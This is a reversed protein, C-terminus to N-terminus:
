AKCVVSGPVKNSEIMAGRESSFLHRKYPDNTMEPGGKRAEKQPGAETWRYGSPAAIYESGGDNRKRSVFYRMVMFELRGNFRMASTPM